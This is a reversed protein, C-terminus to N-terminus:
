PCAEGLQHRMRRTRAEEAVKVVVKRIGAGRWDGESSEIYLGWDLEWM